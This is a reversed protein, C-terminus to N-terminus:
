ASSGKKIVARKIMELLKVGHDPDFFKLASEEYDAWTQGSIDSPPKPCDVRKIPLVRVGWTLAVGMELMVNPNLDSTEFVAIDAGIIDRAIQNFLHEGYGAALSRFALLLPIAGPLKNYDNVAKLFTNEVNRRLESSDFYESQWQHGLVVYLTEARGKQASVTEFDEDSFGFPSGIPQPQNASRDKM